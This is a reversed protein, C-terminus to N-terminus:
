HRAAEAYTKTAQRNRNRLLLISGALCVGLGDIAVDQFTGFRDSVFTQHWEDSAAFAFAILMSTCIVDRTLSGRWWAILKALLMTFILYETVHWGKVITFWSIGWFLQFRQMSSEDVGTFAHVTEFFQAPRIVFCSTVFILLAWSAFPVVHIWRKLQM